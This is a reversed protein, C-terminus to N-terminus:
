SGFSWSEACWRRTGKIWEPAATALLSVELTSQPGKKIELITAAVGHGM